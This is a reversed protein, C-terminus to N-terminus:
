IQVITVEDAIGCLNKGTEIWIFGKEGWTVGWSNRVIWYQINSSTDLGWGTLQVCHDLLQGCNSTVIGGKYVQWSRADVCVSLPGTTYTVEQMLTENCAPRKTVYSWSSIDAYIKSSDFECRGTTGTGSTYPYDAYTEIGGAKIVYEYASYTQGGNCGLSTHDCSVIQQMSLKTLPKGSLFWFSEITETASFAWCSGCQAQNYVPTTAGLTVWNYNDPYTSEPFSDVSLPTEHDGIAGSPSYNLYTSSFEESTLDMFQTVGYTAKNGPTNNLSEAWKLNRMFVSFRYMEEAKSTYEKNYTTKFQQFLERSAIAFSCLLLAALVVSVAKM